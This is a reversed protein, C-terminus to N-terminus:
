RGIFKQKRDLDVVHNHLNKIRVVSSSGDDLKITTATASCGAKYFECSWYCSPGNTQRRHFGFGDAYLKEKGKQNKIFEFTDTSDSESDDSIQQSEDELPDSDRRDFDPSSTYGRQQNDGLLDDYFGNRDIEDNSESDFHLSIDDELEYDSEFSSAGGVQM